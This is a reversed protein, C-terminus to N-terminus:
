AAKKTKNKSLSHKVHRRGFSIGLLILRRMPVVVSVLVLVLAAMAVAVAVPMVVSVVMMSPLLLLHACHGTHCSYM